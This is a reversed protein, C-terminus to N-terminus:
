TLLQSAWFKKPLPPTAQENGSMCQAFFGQVLAGFEESDNLFFIYFATLTMNYFQSFNFYIRFTQKSLNRFNRFCLHYFMNCAKELSIFNKSSANVNLHLSLVGQKSKQPFGSFSLKFRELKVNNRRNASIVRTFIKSCTVRSLFFNPIQFITNLIFYRQWFETNKQIELFIQLYFRIKFHGLTVLIGPKYTYSM